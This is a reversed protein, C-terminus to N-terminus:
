LWGRSRFGVYFGLALGITVITSTVFGWWQQFGPYPVNQGYFGTVATPVAIIAAWASLKKVVNNLRADALSLNTEFITTVLDRLSETWDAARLVHDYVDQFYPAMAPEVVHLDRRLLTNVVERTPLVVRRLQVLSKRLGYTRQQMDRSVPRDEFLLDEMAEIEDDLVEVAEFHSDVVVDLLGHLLAAVGHQMLDPNDDWRRTFRDAGYWAAGRVTVLARPLVFAGIGAIRLGGTGPDLEVAYTNVFLHSAYRDAKPRERRSIADEVALPDLGLEDALELLTAHDPTCVDAWVVCDEQELYDSVQSFPFNAAELVGKRWVRTYDPADDAPDTMGVTHGTVM